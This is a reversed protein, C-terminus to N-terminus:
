EITYVCVMFIHICMMGKEKGFVIFVSEVVYIFHLEFIIRLLAISISKLRMEDIIKELENRDSIQANEKTIFKEPEKKEDLVENFIDTAQKSSITGDKIKDLIFKLM